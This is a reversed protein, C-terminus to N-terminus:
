TIRILNQLFGVLMMVQVPSKLMISARLGSSMKEMSDSATYSKLPSGGVGGLYGPRKRTELKGKLMVQLLDGRLVIM